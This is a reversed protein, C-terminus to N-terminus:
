KAKKSQPKDSKIDKASRKEGGVAEDEDKTKGNEENKSAPKNSSPPKESKTKPEDAKKSVPKESKNSVPKTGATGQERKSGPKSKGAGGKISKM